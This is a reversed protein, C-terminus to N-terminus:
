FNKKENTKIQLKTNLTDVCNLNVHLILKLSPILYKITYANHTRVTELTRITILNTKRSLAGHKAKSQTMKKM